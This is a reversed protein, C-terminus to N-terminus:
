QSHKGKYADILKSYIPRDENFNSVNELILEAQKKYPIKDGINKLLKM